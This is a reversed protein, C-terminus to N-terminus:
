WTDHHIFIIILYPQLTEVKIPEYEPDFKQGDTNLRAGRACQQSSARYTNLASPFSGYLRSWIGSYYILSVTLIILLLCTYLLQLSLCDNMQKHTCTHEWRNWVTMQKLWWELDVEAYCKSLKKRRADHWPVAAWGDRQQTKAPQM